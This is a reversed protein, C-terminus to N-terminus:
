DFWEIEAVDHAPIQVGDFPTCALYDGYWHSDGIRWGWDGMANLRAFLAHTDGYACVFAYAGTM